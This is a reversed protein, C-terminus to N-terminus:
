GVLNGYHDLNFQMEAALDALAAAKDKGYGYVAPGNPGNPEFSARVEHSFVMGPQNRNSKVAAVREAIPMDDSLQIIKPNKVLVKHDAYAIHDPNIQM